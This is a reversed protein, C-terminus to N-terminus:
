WIVEAGDLEMVLCLPFTRIQGSSDLKIRYRETTAYRGVIYGKYRVVPTSGLTAVVLDFSDTSKSREAKTLINKVESSHIQRM